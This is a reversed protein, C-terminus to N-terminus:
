ARLWLSAGNRCRPIQPNTSMDGPHYPSVEAYWCSHIKWQHQPPAAPNGMTREHGVPSHLRPEELMKTRQSKMKEGQIPVSTPPASWAQSPPRPWPTTTSASTPAFHLFIFEFPTKGFSHFHLLLGRRIILLHSKGTSNKKWNWSVSNWKSIKLKWRLLTLPGMRQTRFELTLRKHVNQLNHPLLWPKRFKNAPTLMTGDSVMLKGKQVKLLFLLGKSLGASRFGWKQPSFKSVLNTHFSVYDAVVATQPCALRNFHPFPLFM